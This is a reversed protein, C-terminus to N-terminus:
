HFLGKTMDALGSRNKGSLMGLLNAAAPNNKLFGLVQPIIAQLGNGALERDGGLHGALAGIDIKDMLSATQTESDAGLLAQVDIHELGAMVGQLADPLFSRAQEVDLGAGTLQEILEASQNGMLNYILNM